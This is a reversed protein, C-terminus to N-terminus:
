FGETVNYKYRTRGRGIYRGDYRRPPLLSACACYLGKNMQYVKDEQPRHPPRRIGYAVFTIRMRM